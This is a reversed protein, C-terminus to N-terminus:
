ESARKIRSTQLQASPVLSGNAAARRDPLLRLALRAMVGHSTATEEMLDEIATEYDSWRARNRFIRLVAELAEGSRPAPRQPPVKNIARYACPFASRAVRRYRGMRLYRCVKLDHGTGAQFGLLHQAFLVAADITM